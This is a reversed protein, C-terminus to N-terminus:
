HCFNCIRFTPDVSFLERHREGIKSHSRRPLGRNVSKREFRVFKIPQAQIRFSFRAHESSRATSDSITIQQALRFSRLKRPLGYFPLSLTLVVAPSNPPSPLPVAQLSPITKKWWVFTFIKIPWIKHIVWDTTRIPWRDTMWSRRDEWNWENSM